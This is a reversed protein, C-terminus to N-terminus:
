AAALAKRVAGPVQEIVKLYARVAGDPKSRGQEWDRIRAATFGFRAAFEDQSLNLKQRMAKVDIEAPIHIRFSRPDAEGRAISRAEKASEILRKGFKKM